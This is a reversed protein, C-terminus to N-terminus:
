KGARKSYKYDQGKFNTLRASSGTKYAEIKNNLTEVVKKSFAGEISSDIESVIKKMNSKAARSEKIMKRVQRNKLGEKERIKLPALFNTIMSKEMDKKILKENEMSGSFYDNINQRMM